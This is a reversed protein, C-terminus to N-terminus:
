AGQEPQLVLRNYIGGWLAVVGAMLLLWGIVAPQETVFQGAGSLLAGLVVQSLRLVESIGQWLSQALITADLAPLFRFVIWVMAALPIVGSGLLLLYAIASAWLRRRRNPLRALTQAVFTAPPAVAPTTQLLTDVAQLATWEQALDPRARLHSELEAWGAESLEGDLADMMLTYVEESEM